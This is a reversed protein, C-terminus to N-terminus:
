VRFDVSSPSSLSHSAAQGLPRKGAASISAPMMSLQAGHESLRLDDDNRPRPGLLVVDGFVVRPLREGLEIREPLREERGLLRSDYLQQDVPHIHV